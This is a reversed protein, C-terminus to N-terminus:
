AAPTGTAAGRSWRFVTRAAKAGFVLAVLSGVGFGLAQGGDCVQNSAACGELAALRHILPVAAALVLVAVVVATLGSLVIAALTRM